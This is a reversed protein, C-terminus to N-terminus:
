RGRGADRAAHAAVVDTGSRTPGVGLSGSGRAELDSAQKELGSESSRSSSPAGAMRGGEGAGTGSSISQRVAFSAVDQMWSSASSGIRDFAGVMVDVLEVRGMAAIGTSDGHVARLDRPEFASAGSLGSELHRVRTAAMSQVAVDVSLLAGIERVDKLAPDIRTIASELRAQDRGGFIRITGDVPDTEHDRVLGRAATTVVSEGDRFSDRADSAIRMAADSGGNGLSSSM